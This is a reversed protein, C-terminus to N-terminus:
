GGGEFLVDFPKNALRNVGLTSYSLAQEALLHEPLIALGSDIEALHGDIYAVLEAMLAEDQRIRQVDPTNELPRYSVAVKRGQRELGYIRLLYIAQGAFETELGSPFRVVQANVEIQELTLQQLPGAKLWALTEPATMEEKPAIWREAVEKCDSGEAGLVVNVTMPLRSGFVGGDHEMAYALRYIFRVEGCSGPGFDRRDLRNVVGVLQFFAKESTFWRVDFARGVNGAPFAKAHEHEVVLPRDVSDIVAQIHESWAAALPAYASSHERMWANSVRGAPPAEVPGGLLGGLLAHLGYGSTELPEIVTRDLVDVVPHGAPAEAWAATGLLLGGLLWAGM